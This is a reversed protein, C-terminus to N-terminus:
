PQNKHSEIPLRHMYTMVCVLVLRNFGTELSKVWFQGVQVNKKIVVNNSYIDNYRHLFLETYRCNTQPGTCDNYLVDLTGFQSMHTSM